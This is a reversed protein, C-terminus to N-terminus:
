SSLRDLIGVFERDLSDQYSPLVKKVFKEAQLLEKTEALDEQNLYLLAYRMRKSHYLVDGYKKLKRLDRNYHLYVILSARKQKEFM